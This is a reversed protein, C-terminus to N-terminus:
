WKGKSGPFMIRWMTWAALAIIGGWACLMFIWGSIRM